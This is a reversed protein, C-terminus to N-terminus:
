SAPEQGDGDLPRRVPPNDERTVEEAPADLARHRLWVEIRPLWRSIPTEASLKNFLHHVMMQGGTYVVGHNLRRPSMVRVLGVDGRRLKLPSTPDGPVEHIEEPSLRRFGEREYLDLFLDPAEDEKGEEGLWWVDDRPGGHVVIRHEQWYFRSITEVCDAVGPRFNVGILPANRDLPFSFDEVIHDPGAMVVIVWPLGTAEQGIMDERSPCNQGKTHSHVIAVLGAESATEYDSPDITFANEPDDHINRARVYRLLGHEGSVIMGCAENPYEESVHAYVIPRLYPPLRFSTDVGSGKVIM